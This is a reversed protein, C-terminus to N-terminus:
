REGGLLAPREGEEGIWVCETKTENLKAGAAQEYLHFHERVHNLEDQTKIFAIVDDAYASVKAVTGNLLNGEIRPDNKIRNLLPSIALIYLAASLPCGQKVGKQIDIYDSIRGNVKVAVRSKNYLLQIIKIFHQPFGYKELVCWLYERNIFDLAKKQDFGVIFFGPRHCETIMERINHLNDWMVRGKIACTQEKEIVKNLVANLRIMIVKAFIKYEINSLTIQRWNNLDNGDGKKFILSINGQYFGDHMANNKIGDNFASALIDSLEHSFSQFVEAPLGDPGPAKGRNLLSIAKSVEASTIDGLLSDFQAADIKKVESLFAETNFGGDNVDSYMEKFYEVIVDMIDDEKSVIKGNKDKLSNICNVEQREKYKQIVKSINAPDELNLGAQIKAANLYENNFVMLKSNIEELTNKEQETLLGGKCKIDVYLQMLEKYEKNRAINLFKSKLILLRKICRKTEEWLEVYSETFVRLDKVRNIETKVSQIIEPNSLCNVNLKWNNLRPSDHFCITARVALHDSNVWAETRYSNITIDKSVYIRDIRTKVRTDFRTYGVANPHLVRFADKMDSSDLTEKMVKNARNLIVNTTPIRDKLDTITNFDGALITYIGGCLVERLKNFLAIKDLDRQATYVNILRMKQKRLICDLVLLRGPILERKRQITINKSNFLIGVGDASDGGISFESWGHSWCEKVRNVDNLTKLRLEQTFIIDARVNKLVNLKDQRTSAQQIGRLNITAINFHMSALLLAVALLCMTM